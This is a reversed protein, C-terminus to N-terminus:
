RVLELADPMSQGGNDNLYGEFNGPRFLTSPRLYEDQPTGLWKQTRNEIVKFCDEETFGEKLRSVVAGRNTKTHRFSKGAVTNLKEIVRDAAVTLRDAQCDTNSPEQNITLPKHNAKSGTIGPNALIVPQTKKPKKPRGGKSGNARATDAKAHYKGIEEEIRKHYWGTETEVFFEQLVNELDQNNESVLRLRRIVLQTKKPIPQEDLYYWDMLERYIYHEIPSLHQTDKRYDAINFQYYHM